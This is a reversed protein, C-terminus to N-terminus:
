LTKADFAIGARVLKKVMVEVVAEQFEYAIDCILQEPLVYDGSEAKLKGSEALKKM